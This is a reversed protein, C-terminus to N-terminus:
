LVLSWDLTSSFTVLEKAPPSLGLEQEMVYEKMHGSLIFQAFLYSTQCKQLVSSPALAKLVSTIFKKGGVPALSSVLSGKEYM